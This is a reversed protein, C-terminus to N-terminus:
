PCAVVQIRCLVIKHGVKFWQKQLVRFVGGDRAIKCAYIYVYSYEVFIRRGHSCVKERENKVIKKSRGANTTVCM